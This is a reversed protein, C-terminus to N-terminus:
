SFTKAIKQTSSLLRLSSAGSLLPHKFLEEWSMRLKPEFRLAGALFSEVVEDREPVTVRQNKRFRDPELDFPHRKYFLEHLIVGLSYIDCRDSYLAYDSECNFIEPAYYM